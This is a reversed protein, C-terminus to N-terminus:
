LSFHHLLSICFSNANFTRVPGVARSFTLVDHYSLPFLGWVWMRRHCGNAVNAIVGLADTKVAILVAAHANLSEVDCGEVRLVLFLSCSDCLEFGVAIWSSYILASHQHALITWVKIM